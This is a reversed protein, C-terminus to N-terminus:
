KMKVDLRDIMEDIEDDSPEWLRINAGEVIYGGYDDIECRPFEEAITAFFASDSALFNVLGLAHFLGTRDGAKLYRRILSKETERQDQTMIGGGSEQIHKTLATSLTWEGMLEWGMRGHNILRAGLKDLEGFYTSVQRESCGLEVAIAPQTAIFNRDRIMSEIRALKKLLELAKAPEGREKRSPKGSGICKTNNLPPKFWEILAFEIERLMKPESFELYAIRISESGELSELEPLKHHNRWRTKANKTMGIYQIVEQSDIAFYIAPVM